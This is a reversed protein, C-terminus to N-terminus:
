HHQLDANPDDTTRSIQAGCAEFLEGNPFEGYQPTIFQLLDPISWEDMM